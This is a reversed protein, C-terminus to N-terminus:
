RPFVELTGLPKKSQVLEYPFKGLKDATFTISAPVGSKLVVSKDYEKIAFTDDSDATVKLSIIDGQHVSLTQPGSVITGNKIELVVDQTVLVPISTPTPPVEKKQVGSSTTTYLPRILLLLLPILILFATIIYLHKKM